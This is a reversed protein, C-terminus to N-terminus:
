GAGEEWPAAKPRAHGKLVAYLAYRESCLVRARDVTVEQEGEWVAGRCLPRYRTDTIRNIM